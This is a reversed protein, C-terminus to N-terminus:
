GPGEAVEALRREAELKTEAHDKPPVSLARQARHSQPNLELTPFVHRFTPANTAGIAHQDLIPLPDYDAPQPIRLTHTAHRRASEKPFEM